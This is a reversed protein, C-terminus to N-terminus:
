NSPCAINTILGTDATGTVMFTDSSDAWLTTIPVTVNNGSVTPMGVKVSLPENQARLVEDHDTIPNNLTDDYPAAVYREILARAGTNTELKSYKGYFATVNEVFLTPDVLSPEAATTTTTAAMVTSTTTSPLAAVTTTPEETALASLSPEADAHSGFAVAAGAFVIVGTVLAIRNRTAHASPKMIREKQSEFKVLVSAPTM